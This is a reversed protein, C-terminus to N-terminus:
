GDRGEEVVKGAALAVAAPLTPAATQIRIAGYTTSLQVCPEWDPRIHIHVMWGRERLKDLLALMAAPDTRYNPVTHRGLHEIIATAPKEVEVLHSEYDRQDALFPTDGAAKRKFTYWRWGFLCEAILADLARGSDSILADLERDATM